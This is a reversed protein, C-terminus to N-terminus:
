SIMIIKTASIIPEAPPSIEIIRLIRIGIENRFLFAIFETVSAVKIIIAPAYKVGFSTSNPRCDRPSVTAITIKPNKM